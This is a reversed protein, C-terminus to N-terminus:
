PIQVANETQFFVRSEIIVLRYDLIGLSWNKHKVCIHQTLLNRPSTSLLLKCFAPRSTCESVQNQVLIGLSIIQRRVEFQLWDLHM